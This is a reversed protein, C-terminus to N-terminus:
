PAPAGTPAILIPAKFGARYAATVDDVAKIQRPRLSM